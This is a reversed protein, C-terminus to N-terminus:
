SLAKLMARFRDFDPAVAIAGAAKLRAGHDPPCHGGGTFGWVKMGAAVGARVGNESDELVLCASPPQAIANAAHLFIDPAPKGNRVLDASYIHPAVRDFLDTRKLKKQLYETRSSSAVALAGFQDRAADLASPAGPVPKLLHSNRRRGDLIRAEFDEPAPANWHSQYDRRLAGFFAQDHMGVFRRVFDAEAYDLGFESLVARAGIMGIVESDVLVGDCDFIVANIGGDPIVPTMM